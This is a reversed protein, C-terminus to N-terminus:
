ILVLDASKYISSMILLQKNREEIDNQNISIADIWLVRREERHRLHRLASELNAMVQFVKGHLRIPKTITHDGWAYSLAEHGVVDEDNIEEAIRTGEAQVAVRSHNSFNFANKTLSILRRHWKSPELVTRGPMKSKAAMHTPDFPKLTCCIPSDMPGPELILLRIWIEDEYSNDLAKYIYANKLASEKTAMDVSYVGLCHCCLKGQLKFGWLTYIELVLSGATPPLSTASHTTVLGVPTNTISSDIFTISGVSQGTSGGSSFDLGVSCNYINIGKYTWGWEWIQSIATVANYFTLNRM